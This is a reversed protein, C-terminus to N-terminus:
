EENEDEDEDDEVDIWDNSEAMDRVDDESMYHLCERAITEWSIAGNEAMDILKCTAERVM